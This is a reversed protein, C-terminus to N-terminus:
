NEGAVALSSSVLRVQHITNADFKANSSWLMILPMINVAVKYASSNKFNEVQMFISWFVRLNRFIKQPALGECRDVPYSIKVPEPELFFWRNWVPEPESMCYVRQYASMGLWNFKIFCFLTVSILNIWMLILCKCPIPAMILLM